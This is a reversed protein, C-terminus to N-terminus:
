LVNIPISTLALIAWSIKRWVGVYRVNRLTHLGVDVWGGREHARDIDARTPSVQLQMCYDSASLMLLSLVSILVHLWMNLTNVEACPGDYILGVAGASPYRVNGYIALGINAVFVASVLVFQAGLTQSRKSYKGFIM